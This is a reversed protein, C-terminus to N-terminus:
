ISSPSPLPSTSALCETPCPIQSKPSPRAKDRTSRPSAQTPDRGSSVARSSRGAAVENVIRSWASPPSVLSLSLTHPQRRRRRADFGGRAVGALWCAPPERESPVCALSGAGSDLRVALAPAGTSLSLQLGHIRALLHLAESRPLLACGLRTVVPQAPVPQVRPRTSRATVPYSGPRPSASPM